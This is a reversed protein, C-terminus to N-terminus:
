KKEGEWLVNLIWWRHGDNLLQISNIGREFPKKDDEAHRSEYTSFVQAIHAFQNTKRNAEREFFGHTKFYQDGSTAYQTLTFQPHRVMGKNNEAVAVLSDERLFLSKMRKWDRQQGAPGSIVDYLAHIIHDITDVDEQKAEIKAKATVAAMQGFCMGALLMLPIPLAKSLRM